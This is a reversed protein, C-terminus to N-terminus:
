YDKKSIPIPTQFIDIGSPVKSEFKVTSSDSNTLITANSLQSMASNIVMDMSESIVKDINDQISNSVNSTISKLTDTIKTTITNNAPIPELASVSNYTGAILLITSGLILTFVLSSRDKSLIKERM